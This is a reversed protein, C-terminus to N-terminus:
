RGSSSAVVVRRGVGSAGCRCGTPFRSPYQAVLRQLNLELEIKLHSSMQLIWKQRAHCMRVAKELKLYLFFLKRREEWGVRGEVCNQQVFYGM